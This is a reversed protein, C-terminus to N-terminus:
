RLKGGVHQFGLKARPDGMDKLAQWVLWRADYDAPKYFLKLDRVADEASADRHEARWDKLEDAMSKLKRSFTDLEADKVSAGAGCAM